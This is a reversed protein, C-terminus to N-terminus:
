EEVMPRKKVVYMNEHPSSSIVRLDEKLETKHLFKRLLVRLYKKPPANEVKEYTITIKNGSVDVKANMKGELFKALDEVSKDSHMDRLDSMEILFEKISLGEKSLPFATTM